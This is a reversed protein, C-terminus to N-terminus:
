FEKMKRSVEVENLETHGLFVKEKTEADKKMESRKEM